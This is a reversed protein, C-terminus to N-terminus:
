FRYMMQLAAFGSAKPTSPAIIVHAAVSPTLAIKVSGALMVPIDYGSAVGLVVGAKIIGLELPRWAYGLYATTKSYSNEYFGAVVGNDFEVGLGLNTENYKYDDKKSFHYSALNVALSPNWGNYVQEGEQAHTGRSVLLFTIALFAILIINSIRLM